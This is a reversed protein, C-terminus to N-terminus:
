QAFRARRSRSELLAAHAHVLQGTTELLGQGLRLAQRDSAVVRLHLRGVHHLRHEVLLAAGSRGQQLLGGDVDVHQAALEIGQEVGQGLELVGGALDLYALVQRAQEIEGVLQCLLALVLEDGGLQEHEGGEIVLAGQAFGQAIGAAALLQQLLGDFGHAAALFHIGGAGLLLALRQLAVGDVQGLAGAGALDIRHDAAVLFDAADDLHQRAAGLVVRGQDALGAHALGGDDFAQGLADDVAFHRLAQLVLAQQRQVEARQDGAGLEAALELLAQFRHQGVQGLGGTRHDQEDVLDMGQDAGALGFAGHVGAVHELRRQRAALQAADAGGGQIFVALVDLLVGRQLAAELLHQHALGAHFVGDGDQAAQLLAVLYMVVDVDGVAGEDGGGLQRVAVDGVAVQRVLGDVQHVLISEL